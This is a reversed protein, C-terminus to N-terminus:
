AVISNTLSSKYQILVNLNPATHNIKILASWALMLMQRIMRVGGLHRITVKINSLCLVVPLFCFCLPCFLHLELFTRELVSCVCTVPWCCRPLHDLLTVTLWIVKNFGLLTTILYILKGIVINKVQPHLKYLREHLLKVLDLDM